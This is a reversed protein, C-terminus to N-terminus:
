FLFKLNGDIFRTDLHPVSMPPSGVEAKGYVKAEHQQIVEENSCALFQGSVPFGGYGEGIPLDTKELLPIAAGGQRKYM